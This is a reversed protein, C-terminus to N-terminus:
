KKNQIFVKKLKSLYLRNAILFGSLRFRIPVIQSNKNISNHTRSITEFLKDWWEAIKEPGSLNMVFKFGKEALNKRFDEDLVVRDITEAIIKPELSNPLFPPIIEEGDIFYKIDPDIYQIIPKKCLAAEREVYGQYGAHMQGIVADAFVYYKAVDERKMIPLFKVQPPKNKIWEKGLEIEKPIRTNYWKIQLVEFDSKCLRLAEWIREIGKGPDLRQPSFFTFKRKETKVPMVKDNFITTDMIYGSIKINDNLYKKQYPALENDIIVWTIANHYAKRYYYRELFNFHYLPHDTAYPDRVNKVFPPAKIDDGVFYLIYNLDALYAVLAGTPSMVVCIDFNNKVKNVRKVMEDIKNTKFFEVGEKEDVITSAGEWSFNILHIKSKKVFKRLTAINNTLDGIALVRIVM